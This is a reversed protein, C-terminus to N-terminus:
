QKLYKAPRIFRIDSVSALPMLVKTPVNENGDNINIDNACSSKVETLQVNRKDIKIALLMTNKETITTVINTPLGILKPLAPMKAINQVCLLSKAIPYGIPILYNVILITVNFQSRSKTAANYM